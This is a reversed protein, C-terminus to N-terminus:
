VRWVTTMRKNASDFPQELIKKRSSREIAADVGFLQSATLLATETPDGIPKERGEADIEISSSNCLVSVLLLRQLNEGNGALPGDGSFNPQPGDLAEVLDGSALRYESITMRNETLTGTKDTCIVTASGLAEVASLKRVIANRRAMRLVGLALILTTLAPLGEPIAAVALSIAVELMLWVGDGRLAGAAFVVAAIGLVLYVLRKGLDELKRELPTRGQEAESVLKGIRGLETRGGTATVAVLSSGAVVTTGLFLMPTREALPTAEGVPEADKEVPVSEGTLTSEDSRLNASEIIRADAPVRDGAALIVIDGAVLEEADIIREAGDRRVRATIRTTKKLAELSRGAQWEIAFGIAANLLLVVVIASGELPSDTFFAIAAAAALLWVVISSFQNILIRWLSYGAEATIANPGDRELRLEAEAQSLGSAHEVGLERAVDDGSRSHASQLIKATNDGM